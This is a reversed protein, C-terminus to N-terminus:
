TGLASPLKVIDVDNVQQHTILDYWHSAKSSSLASTSNVPLALLHSLTRPDTFDAQSAFSTRLKHRRVHFHLKSVVVQFGSM